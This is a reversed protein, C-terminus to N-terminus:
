GNDRIIKIAFDTSLSKRFNNRGDMNKSNISNEIDQNSKGDGWPKNGGSGWPGGNNNNWNM